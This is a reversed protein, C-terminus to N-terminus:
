AAGGHPEREVEIRSLLDDGARRSREDASELLDLAVVLPPVVGRARQEINGFPWPGPVVHLLVNPAMSHELHFRNVLRSADDRKAYAELEDSAAIDAEYASAGSVGGLCVVEHKRLREVAAPHGRLRWLEARGRLAPYLGRIGQERLQRRLRSRQSMSVWEADGNHWLDILAWANAPEYPRGESVPQASRREVSRSDILWRGGVKQAELVGDRVMARVRGPKVQLRRAAENSPLMALLSAVNSM